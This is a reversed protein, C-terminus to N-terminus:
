VVPTLHALQQYCHVPGAAEARQAEATFGVRVAHELQVIGAHLGVGHGCRVLM